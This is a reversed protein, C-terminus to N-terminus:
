EQLIQDILWTLTTSVLYDTYFEQEVKYLDTLILEGSIVSLISWVTDM